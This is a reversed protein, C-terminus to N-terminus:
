PLEKSGSEVGAEQAESAQEVLEDTPEAETAEEAFAPTIEGEGTPEPEPEPEPQVQEIKIVAEYDGMVGANTYGDIYVEVPVTYQGPATYDTLDAVARINNAYIQEIVSDEARVAVQLSTTVCSVAYDEPYGEEPEMLEISTVRYMKTTLGKLELSVTATEAGSLNVTDNPILITREATYEGIVEALDIPDLAIQNIGSLAEEDGALTVFGPEIEFTVNDRTAGGGSIFEVSLYVDKTMVIPQTVTIEDVSCTLEDSEIIEGGASMLTYPLVETVTASLNERELVVLAHDIQSVLEEPGKVTIQEPSFNLPEALYGEAVPSDGSLIGKVDVQVTTLQEVTFAIYSPEQGVVSVSSLSLGDAYGIAYPLEYNGAQRIGSVDVTLTINDENQSLATLESRKGYFTLNAMPNTIVDVMLSRDEQLQEEGAFAVDIGRITITAYPTVVSRVYVWFGFSILLAVVALLPNFGRREKYRERNNLGAKVKDIKPIKM